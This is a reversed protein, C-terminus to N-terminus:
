IRTVSTKMSKKPSLHNHFDIIPMTEAANHYLEKATENTLLFDDHIFSKM